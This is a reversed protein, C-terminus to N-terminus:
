RALWVNWFYPFVMDFPGQVDKRMVWPLFLYGYHIGIAREWFLRNLDQWLRYRREFQLESSMAQWLQAHDPDCHIGPSDCRVWQDLTPDPQYMVRDVTYADWLDLNKRRQVLAGWTLVQLDITFGVAELQQKIVLTSRYHRLLDQAVLYRVPEGQYGAEQLLRRAQAPDRQNYHERGVDTWWPEEKAWLSSDLRYFAASGVAARLIPEVDLAALAAQRLKVDAFVGHRMNLWTTLRSFPKAISVKLDPHARLRDYDDPKALQFDTEGSDVAAAAASDDPVWRFLLADLWATKGGGYGNPPEPRPRYGEFRVLKLVRNPQYEEVRFPGTGIYAKVEGDGAAEVVAKPYIAGILSPLVLATKANLRLQVTYRDLPQVSEVRTFLARGWPHKHGWRRLSAVVDASTMEQGNHFPVSRRLRVTYLRGDDSVTHGEALMPILGGDQGTTYLGELFHHAIMHTAVTGTSSSDLTDLALGIVWRLTGGRRPVDASGLATGLSIAFLYILSHLLVQRGGASPLRRM